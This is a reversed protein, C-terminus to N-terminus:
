LNIHFIGMWYGTSPNLSVVKQNHTEEWAEKEEKEM